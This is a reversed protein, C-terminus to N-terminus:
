ATGATPELISAVRRMDSAEDLLGSREFVDAIVRFGAATAYVSMMPDIESRAEVFPFAKRQRTDEM